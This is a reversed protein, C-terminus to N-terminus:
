VSLYKEVINDYCNLINISHQSSFSEVQDLTDNSGDGATLSFM